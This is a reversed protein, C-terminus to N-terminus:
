PCAQVGWGTTNTNLKVSSRGSNTVEVRLSDLADGVGRCVLFGLPLEDADGLRGQADFTVCDLDGDDENSTITLSQQATLVQNASEITTIADLTGRAVVIEGPAVVQGEAGGPFQEESGTFNWCVVSSAQDSTVAEVRAATLAKNLVKASISINQKRAFSSYSPLAVAVVISFIAITVILEILTFAGIDNKTHKMLKIQIIGVLETEKHKKAM